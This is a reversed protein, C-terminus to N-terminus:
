LWYLNCAFFIFMFMKYWSHEPVLICTIFILVIGVLALSVNETFNFMVTILIGVNVTVCDLFKISAVKLDPGCYNMNIMNSSKTPTMSEISEIQMTSM